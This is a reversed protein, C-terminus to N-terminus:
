ELCVARVSFGYCRGYDYWGYGDSYFGMFYASGSDGSSLSSSWYHGWSGANGLGTDYRRGAAPLFISNGNTGTVKYGNVGNQTTWTWTCKTRLENQEDKTPMRWNSGWNATAADDEPDLITKNDATGSWSENCYKTMTSSSGNCWKYSAWDFSRGDNTDGKYGETEGWAFYLGYDEPSTAGVNCTAWKVSLGLDIYEHQVAPTEAFEVCDAESATYSKVIQGDKYVNIIQASVSMSCVLAAIALIYKKMTSIIM